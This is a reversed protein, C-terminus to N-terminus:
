IEDLELEEQVIINVSSVRDMMYFKLGGIIIIFGCLRIISYLYLEDGIEENGRDIIYFVICFTLIQFLWTLVPYLTQFLKRTVGNSLKSVRMQLIDKGFQAIGFLASLTIFLVFLSPAFRGIIVHINDIEFSFTGVIGILLTIFLSIVAKIGVLIDSPINEGKM